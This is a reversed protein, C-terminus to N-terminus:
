RSRESSRVHQNTPIEGAEVLSKFRALAREALLSPVSGLLKRFGRGIPAGTDFSMRLIAETGLDRPAPRLTLSGHNPLSANPRTRWHIYEGERTEDTEGDWEIARGTPLRVRWHLGNDPAPTIDAFHAMIRALNGPALWYEYLERASKGITISREVDVAEAASRQGTAERGNQVGLAEYAHCHGTIGRYLLPAGALALAQSAFSHRRLLSLLGLGVITSAVREGRGVNVVGLSPRGNSRTPEPRALASSATRALNPRARELLSGGHTAQTQMSAM